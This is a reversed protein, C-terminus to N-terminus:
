LLKLEHSADTIFRKQKEYALVDIGLRKQYYLLFYPLWLLFLLVILFSNEFRRIFFVSIEQFMLVILIGYDKESVTYKFGNLFGTQNGTKLM